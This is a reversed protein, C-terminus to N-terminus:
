VKLKARDLRKRLIESFAWFDRIVRRGIKSEQVFRYCIKPPPTSPFVAPM